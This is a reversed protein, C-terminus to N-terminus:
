FLSFDKVLLQSTTVVRYDEDFIEQVSDVRPLYRTKLIINYFVANYISIVWYLCLLMYSLLIKTRTFSSLKQIPMSICLTLGYVYLIADYIDIKEKEFGGFLFLIGMTLVCAALGFYWVGASGADTVSILYLWRPYLDPLKLCYVIRDNIYPYTAKLNNEYFM